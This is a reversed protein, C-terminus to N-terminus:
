KQKRERNFIIWHIILKNICVFRQRNYVISMRSWQLHKSRTHIHIHKTSLCHSYITCLISLLFSITYKEQKRENRFNWFQVSGNDHKVNKVGIQLMHAATRTFYLSLLWSTTNTFKVNVIKTGFKNNNRWYKKMKKHSLHQITPIYRSSQTGRWIRIYGYWENMPRKLTGDKNSTFMTCVILHVDRWRLVIKFPIGWVFQRNTCRFMQSLSSRLFLICLLFSFSSYYLFFIDVVVVICRVVNFTHRLM